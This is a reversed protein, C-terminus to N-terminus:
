QKGQGRDMSEWQQPVALSGKLIAKVGMSCHPVWPDLKIGALQGALGRVTQKICTNYHPCTHSSHIPSHTHPVPHTHTRTHAHMYLISYIGM